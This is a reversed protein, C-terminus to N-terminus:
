GQSSGPMAPTPITYGAEALLSELRSRDIAVPDYEVVAEARPFSVTAARVGATQGLLKEIKAACGGCGMGAIPLTVQQTRGQM